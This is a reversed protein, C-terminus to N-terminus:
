DIVWDQNYIKIFLLDKSVIIMKGKHTLAGITPTNQKSQNTKMITFLITTM